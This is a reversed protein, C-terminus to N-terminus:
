RESEASRGTAAEALDRAHKMTGVRFYIDEGDVDLEDGRGGLRLHVAAESRPFKAKVTKMEFQGFFGPYAVYVNRNTLFILRTELKGAFRRASISEVM